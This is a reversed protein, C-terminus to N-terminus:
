QRKGAPLTTLEWTENKALAKMEEVMAAKWKPDNFAELRFLLWPCCLLEIPHDYSLFNSIPHQTCTRVGKRVAITLDIDDILSSSDVLKPSSPPALIYRGSSDLPPSLVPDSTKAIHLGHSNGFFSGIWHAQGACVQVKKAGPLNSNRAITYYGVRGTSHGRGREEVGRVLVWPGSWVM